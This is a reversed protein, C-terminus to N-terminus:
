NILLARWTLGDRAFRRWRIRGGQRECDRREQRSSEAMARCGASTPAPGFWAGLGSRERQASRAPLSISTSVTRPAGKARRTHPRSYQTPPSLLLPSDNAGAPLENPSPMLRVHQQNLRPLRPCAPCACCICMRWLPACRRRLGDACADACTAPVPTGDPEGPSRSLVGCVSAIFAGHPAGGLLQGQHPELRHARAMNTTHTQQRREQYDRPM